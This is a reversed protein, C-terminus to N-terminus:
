QDRINYIQKGQRVTVSLYVAIIRDKTKQTTNQLNINIRKSTPITNNTRRHVGKYIM